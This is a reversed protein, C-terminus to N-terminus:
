VKAPSYTADALMNRASMCDNILLLTGFIGVVSVCNRGDLLKEKKWQAKGEKEPKRIRQTQSEIWQTNARTMNFSYMIISLIRQNPILFHADIWTKSQRIVNGFSCQVNSCYYCNGWKFAQSMQTHQSKRQKCHMQATHPTIRHNKGNCLTYMDHLNYMKSNRM